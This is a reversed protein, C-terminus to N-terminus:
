RPGYTVEDDGDYGARRSCSRELMAALTPDRTTNWWPRPTRDITMGPPPPIIAGDVDGCLEDIERKIIARPKRNGLARGILRILEPRQEDRIWFGRQMLAAEIGAWIEAARAIPSM